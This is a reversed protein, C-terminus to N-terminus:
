SVAAFRIENPLEGPRVPFDLGPIPLSERNGELPSYRRNVFTMELYWPMGSESCKGSTNGHLHAIWFDRQLSKVLELFEKKRTDHIEMILVPVDILLDYDSETKLIEWEGGEIDIKLITARLDSSYSLAEALSCENKSKPNRVVFKKEHRFRDKGFRFAPLYTFLGIFARQFDVLNFKRPSTGIRVEYITRRVMYFLMKLIGIVSISGDFFVIERARIKGRKLDFLAREFSWEVGLGLSLCGTIDELVERPLLYGGDANRGLRVLDSMHPTLESPAHWV